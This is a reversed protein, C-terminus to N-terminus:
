IQRIAFGLSSVVLDIAIAISLNLGMPVGPRLAM